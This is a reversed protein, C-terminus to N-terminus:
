TAGIRDAGSTEGPARGAKRCPSVRRRDVDLRCAAHRSSGDIDACLPQAGFAPAGGTGCRYMSALVLCLLHVALVGNGLFADSEDQIFRPCESGTSAETHVM